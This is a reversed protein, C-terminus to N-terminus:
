PKPNKYAELTKVLHKQIERQTAHRLWFVASGDTKDQRFYVNSKSKSWEEYGGIQYPGIGNSKYIPDSLFDDGLIVRAKWNYVVYDGPKFLGRNHQWDFYLFMNVIFTLIPNRHLLFLYAWRDSGYTHEFIRHFEFKRWEPKQVESYKM